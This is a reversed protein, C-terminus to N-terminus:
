PLRRRLQYKDNIGSWPARCQEFFGPFGVMRARNKQGLYKKPTISDARDWQQWATSSIWFLERISSALRYFAVM